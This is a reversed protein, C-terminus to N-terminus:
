KALLRTVNKVALEAQGDGQPNYSSTSIKNTEAIRLLQRIAKSLFEAGRDSLLKRPFGYMLDVRYLLFNAVTESTMDSTAEAVIHKSYLDIAVLIYLKGLFTAPFGGVFDLALTDFLGSIPITQLLGQAKQNSSNFFQCVQCAKVFKKVDSRM